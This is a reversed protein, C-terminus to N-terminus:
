ENEVVRTVPKGCKACEGELILGHKEIKVAYNVISTLKCNSCFVNNLLIERWEQPVGSWLKLAKIDSVMGVKDEKDDEVMELFLRKEFGGREQHKQRRKEELAEMTYGHATCIAYLVELIDAMEELNRDEQYEKVEELLKRDLESNYEKESLIRFRAKGGAKEIIEPINDRVLKNHKKM